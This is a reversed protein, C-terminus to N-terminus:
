CLGDGLLHIAFSRKFSSNFAWSCYLQLTPAAVRFDHVSSSIWMKCCRATSKPNGTGWRLSALSPSIRLITRAAQANADQSSSGAGTHPLSTRSCLQVREEQKTLSTVQKSAAMWLGKNTSHLNPKRTQEAKSTKKKSKRCVPVPLCPLHRLNACNLSFLGGLMELNLLQKLCWECAVRYCRYLKLRVKLYARVAINTAGNKAKMFPLIGSDPLKPLYKQHLWNM